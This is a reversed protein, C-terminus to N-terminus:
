RGYHTDMNISGHVNIPSKVGVLQIKRLTVNIVSASCNIGDEPSFPLLHRFVYSLSTCFQGAHLVPYQSDCRGFVVGVFLVPDETGRLVYGVVQSAVWICGARLRSCGTREVVTECM